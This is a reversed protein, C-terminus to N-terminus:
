AQFVVVASARREGSALREPLSRAKEPPETLTEERRLAREQQRLGLPRHEVQRLERKAEGAIRYTLSARAFFQAM